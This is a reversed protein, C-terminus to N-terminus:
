DAVAGPVLPTMGEEGNILFQLVRRAIPAAVRGGSGGREVVVAVVYKPNDIPAVGVFWATDVAEIGASAKIVEATGTKGGVVEKNEGFEAFASRATGNGNVVLQMDERLLRVTRDSLEVQSLAQPPNELLVEGADNVVSDVIRPQWMTGGNVMGAYANALQLPTVLVEGQGLVVNMVDGGVWPGERVRGPTEAQVREFWERDPILGSKEFPLDIGTKQDFGFKRAWQQLLDEDFQDNRGNWVRLAVEWFYLDCSGHLAGHLDIAGHGEPLWDRFVQPSGDLFRFELQGDCFYEDTDRELELPYIAHELATVYAVSKFTSAPAYVGQIAFNNFVAGQSLAEWEEQTLGDIFISPDFTPVSAMAVVSGDTADIVVGVARIPCAKDESTPECGPSIDNRALELGETLTEELVGQVGADLTLILTEGPVPSQERISQVRGQADISYKIIGPTGRLEFDYQREVGAKGLVDTPEIEPKELDTADPRGIYGIVHAALPGEPYVRVPQPVVSVGPFDERYEVLFLAQEDTLESALTIRDGSTQARDVVDQVESEAMGAFAALRKVLAEEVDRTVLAGDVVAALAPRTGALLKGNRDRIEGRPAPTNAIRVQNNAAQLEYQETETIQITWLRLALVAFLSLFALGLAGVRVSPNVDGM